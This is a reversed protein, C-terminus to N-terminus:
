RERTSGMRHGYQTAPSPKLTIVSAPSKMRHEFHPCRSAFCNGAKAHRQGFHESNFRGFHARSLKASIRPVCLRLNWNMEERKPLADHWNGVSFASFCAPRALQDSLDHLMFIVSALQCHKFLRQECKIRGLSSHGGCDRSDRGVHSRIRCHGARSHRGLSTESAKAYASGHPSSRTVLTSGAQPIALALHAKPPRRIDRKFVRGAAVFTM